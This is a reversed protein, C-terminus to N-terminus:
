VVPGLTPTPTPTQNHASDSVLYKLAPTTTSTQLGLSDFDPTRTPTGGFYPSRMGPIFLFMGGPGVGTGDFFPSRCVAVVSEWAMWRVPLATRDGDRLAAAYVDVAAGFDALKVTFRHDVLCSGASLAGHVVGLVEVYKMAAAIQTALFILCGYSCVCVRTQQVCM